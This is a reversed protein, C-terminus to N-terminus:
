LSCYAFPLTCLTLLLPFFLLLPYQFSILHFSFFTSRFSHLSPAPVSSSAPFIFVKKVPDFLAAMNQPPWVNEIAVIEQPGSLYRMAELGSPKSM